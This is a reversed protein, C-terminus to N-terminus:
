VMSDYIEELARSCNRIDFNHRVFETASASMGSCLKDNLLIQKLRAALGEVDKEVFRFGTRTDLLGESAGGAASSVVPLGCAQAELLVTGFGELNGKKTTISPLCLVRAQLMQERVQQSSLGGLFEASIELSKSLHSLHERDPGDGVIVLEAEAVEAHVQAFAKILYEVGKVEVLRGVFLIRKPVATISVSGRRFRSTDVGTYRVSIKNAPIGFAIARAQIVESVAVFHVSRENSLDLLQKPYRRRWWGGHGKEWWERNTTIDLGHLTVIM